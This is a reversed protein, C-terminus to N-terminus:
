EGFYLTGKKYPDVCLLQNTISFTKQQVYSVPLVENEIWEQYHPLTKIYTPLLFPLSDWNLGWDVSICLRVGDAIARDIYAYFVGETFPDDKLAQVIRGNDFPLRMNYLKNGNNNRKRQDEITNAM